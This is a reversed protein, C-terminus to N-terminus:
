DEKKGKRRMVIVALLAIALVACIIRVTSTDM